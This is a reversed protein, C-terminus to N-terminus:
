KRRTPASPPYPSGTVPRVAPSAKSVQLRPASSQAMTSAQPPPAAIAAVLEEAQGIKETIKDATARAERTLEELLEPLEQVAKVRLARPADNFLWEEPSPNEDPDAFENGQVTRLAIGWKSGVKAYGLQQAWFYGDPSTSALSGAITVWASIGLNLRKLAADLESISHGLEDSVTNLQTAAAKLQQFSVSVKNPIQPNDTM